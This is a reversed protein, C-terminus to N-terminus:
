YDATGSKKRRRFTPMTNDRSRTMASQLASSSLDYTTSSSTNGQHNASDFVHNTDTM